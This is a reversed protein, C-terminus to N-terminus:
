KFIVQLDGNVDYHSHAFFPPDGDKMEIVKPLLVPLDTVAPLQSLSSIQVWELSGENSSIVADSSSNGKFVYVCVGPNVRTDVTVIGCLFLADSKIGTEEFLERRAASLVDEGQEVHGGIGNYRGPWLRKGQAGKLLLISTGRVIFILTRPVLMYRELNVGQESAPM